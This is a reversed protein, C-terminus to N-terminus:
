LKSSHGLPLQRAVGRQTGSQVHFACQPCFEGNGMVRGQQMGM